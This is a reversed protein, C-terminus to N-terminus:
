RKRQAASGALGAGSGRMQLGRAARDAWPPPRAICLTPPLALGLPPRAPPCRGPALASAAQRGPWVQAGPTGRRPFPSRLFQPDPADGGGPAGAGSRPSPGRRGWGGEGRCGEAQSSRTRSAAARVRAERNRSPAPSRPDRHRDQEQAERGRRRLWSNSDSSDMSDQFSLCPRILVDM